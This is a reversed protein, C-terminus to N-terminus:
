VIKSERELKHITDMIREIGIIDNFDSPFKLFSEIRDKANMLMPDKKMAANLGIKMAKRLYWPLKELNFSGQLTYLRIHYYNLLNVTILTQRRDDTNPQMGVAVIILNKDKIKKYKKLFKDVKCIKNGHVPSMFIITDYEKMKKTSMKKYSFSECGIRSKLSDAYKETNGTKSYFFIITKM